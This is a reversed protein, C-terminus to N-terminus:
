RYLGLVIDCSQRHLEPLALIRDDRITYELCLIIIADLQKMQFKTNAYKVTFLMTFSSMDSITKMIINKVRSRFTIEFPNAAM